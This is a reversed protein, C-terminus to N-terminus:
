CAVLTKFGGYAMRKCDFLQKSPDCMKRIRPDAIVKANVQDRHKRSKYTIWSFVVVEDPKCRASKPFPMGWDNKLDDGLCERYELAGYEKWVKGAKRAIRRYEAVKNKPVPILFGDVYEPM